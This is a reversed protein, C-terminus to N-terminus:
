YLVIIAAPTGTTVPLPVVGAASCFYMRLAESVARNAGCTTFFTGAPEPLM